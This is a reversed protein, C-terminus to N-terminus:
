DKIRIIGNVEDVLTQSFDFIEPHMCNVFCNGILLKLILKTMPAAEMSKTIQGKEQGRSIMGHIIDFATRNVKLVDAEPYFIFIRFVEKLLSPPVRRVDEVQLRIYKEMNVLENEDTLINALESKREVDIEVIREIIISQITDYYNYFTGISVDAEKCIERVKLNEIGYIKSLEYVAKTIRGKTEIKQQERLNMHLDGEWDIKVRELGDNM